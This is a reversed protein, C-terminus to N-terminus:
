AKGVDSVPIPEAPLRMFQVLVLSVFVIGVGVLFPTKFGYVEWVIGGIVPVIVAAIHNITQQVAVNSTIEEQTVAIKQFYTTLALSFGFLVNDVVFLFFLIPLYRTYAYGLFVLVLTGFAISLMLREGLKNVLKGVLQSSYVSVFGNVLFLLATTQVSIGYEKVLLFIAFTTFIHRRCGMLFALLYYLWYRWRLVVKRKSPLGKQGDNFFLLFVGGTAVLGGILMYLNRYGWIETLFYVVGTAMLAAIAGLSGLQGMFKPAEKKDVVMLIVSNNSSYFFHFGLSMVLTSAFLYQASNAQGTLFVGAGMMITCLAMIKTESFLLVLFGLLFGMLGPLERVAQLWGMSTPGIGIEEVAFNNLMAQWARFGFYLLFNSSILYVLTRRNNKYLSLM